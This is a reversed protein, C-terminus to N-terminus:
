LCVQEFIRLNERYGALYALTNRFADFLDKLQTNNVFFVVAFSEKGAQSANQSILKVRNSGPKKSGQVVLPPCM